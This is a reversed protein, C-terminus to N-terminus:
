DELPLREVESYDSKKKLLVYFFVSTFFLFFILLSTIGFWQVGEINELIYKAM